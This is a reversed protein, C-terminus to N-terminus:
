FGKVYLCAGRIPAPRLPDDEAWMLVAPVNRGAAPPLTIVEPLSQHPFPGMTTLSIWNQATAPWYSQARPAVSAQYLEDRGEVQAIWGYARYACYHVVVPEDPTVFKCSIQHTCEAVNLRSHRTNQALVSSSLATIVLIVPLLFSKM